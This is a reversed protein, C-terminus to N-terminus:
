HEFMAKIGWGPPFATNGDIPSIVEGEFKEYDESDVLLRRPTGLPQIWVYGNLQIGMVESPGVPLGMEKPMTPIVMEGLKFKFSM